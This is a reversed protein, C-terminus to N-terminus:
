VLDVDLLEPQGRGSAAVEGHMLGHVYCAGVFHYRPPTEEAEAEAEAEAEGTGMSRSRSGSGSMSMSRLVAPATLGPLVWVEDGPAASLAAMGLYAGDVAVLQRGGYVSSYASAFGECRQFMRSGRVVYGGGVIRQRGARVEPPVYFDHPGGDADVATNRVMTCELKDWFYLVEERSPLYNTNPPGGDQAAAVADLAALTPEMDAEMPDYPLTSVTMTDNQPSPEVGVKDLVMRDAGALIMLLMFMRFQAGFEDPARAGYVKSDFLSGSSMDMCLTRWLIESLVPQEGYADQARISLLLQLWSPDFQLKGSPGINPRGAAETIIGIRVGRVGLVPSDVRADDARPARYELGKDASFIDPVGNIGPLSFDLVWSPLDDRRQVPYVCASLASLNGADLILQRTTATYVDVLSLRYDTLLRREAFANVVGYLAFVKDRPDSALFTWFNFVLERLVFLSRSARVEEEENGATADVDRRLARNRNTRYKHVEGMNWEVAVAADHLPVFATSGSAGLKAKSHRLADAVGGLDYWSVYADGLYMLLVPPLIAEQVIWARRFWQRQYISALAAWGAWPILPVGAEEYNAGDYGGFPEIRSARFADLHEKLASLTQLGLSSREDPPGLWAVVYAANSYIRDMISVQASKEDVDAQNICIADAWILRDAPAPNRPSQCDHPLPDPQQGAFGELLAVVDDHGGDRALDSASKEEKDRRARLAGARCLMEVVEVRGKGAAYHLATRGRDDLNDVAAGNWLWERVLEADGGEVVDHLYTRGGTAALPRDLYDVYASRPVESLADHLNRQIRLTRGDLEVAVTSGPEYRPAVSEFHESFYRGHAFPNSWTYSLCHYDPAKPDGVHRTTLSFRLTGDPGPDERRLLRIHSTSPLPSYVYPLSEPM